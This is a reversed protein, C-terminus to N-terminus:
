MNASRHPPALDKLQQFATRRYPETVLRPPGAIWRQTEIIGDRFLAIVPVELSGSSSAATTRRSKASPAGTSGAVSPQRSIERSSKEVGLIKEQMQKAFSSPTAAGDGEGDVQFM